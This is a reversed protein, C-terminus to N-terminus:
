RLVKWVVFGIGGIGVIYLATLALLQWDHPTM